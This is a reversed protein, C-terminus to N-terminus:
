RGAEIIGSLTLSIFLLGACIQGFPKIQRIQSIWALGSMVFVSGLLYWYTFIKLNDYGWNAFQFLNPVIFLSLSAFGLVRAFPTFKGKWLGLLMLPLFFGTNKFWFLFFNESGKMWGFHFPFGNSQSLFLPLQVISLVGFPLFFLFIAELYKKKYRKDGRILGMVGIVGITLTLIVLSLYSHTHFFPMLGALIGALIFLRLKRERWGVFVLWLVAFFLPLGFLFARQPLIESYLFTFFWMGKEAWFTYERPPSFLTQVLTVEDVFAEQLWFVCGMGGWFLSLFLAGFGMFLRPPKLLNNELALYLGFFILTLVVGPIVFAIPLSVGLALFVGSLFDAFFPYILPIPAFTPNQPPFNGGWAFNAALGMHVPWDTWVLRDGAVLQGGEGYFLSRGFLWIILLIFFTAGLKERLTLKRVGFLLKFPASFIQKMNGKGWWWSIFSMFVLVGLITVKNFPLFFGLFFLTLTVGVIGILVSIFSSVPTNEVNM